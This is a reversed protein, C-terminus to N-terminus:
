ACALDPVTSTGMIEQVFGKVWETRVAAPSFVDLISRQSDQIARILGQDGQLIRALKRRAEAESDCAGAQSGKDFSEMLGGRMYVVPMGYAIAELPHYHIHRPERSHYYMVQLERYYRLLRDETVFGTLRPDPVPIPQAGAIIHPFEGFDRKFKEYIAGYYQPSTMISPCFFFVRKDGGRWCGAQRLVRDPLAVPLYVSRQRLLPAEILPITEYCVGLWFRRQIQWLRKWLWGDAFLDIYRTYNNPHERGFLRVVIRGQFFKALQGILPPFAACIVTGFHGNLVNAMEEDFATQYFNFRNLYDLVHTPLTCDQDWSFDHTGSRFDDGSPMVKSTFVEYDLSQILEVEADRLTTHNLLWAIRKERPVPRTFTAKPRTLWSCETVQEFVGLLEEGVNEFANGHTFRRKACEARQESAARDATHRWLTEALDNSDNPDFSLGCGDDHGLSETFADIRSHILPTGQRLAALLGYSTGAGHTRPDVVLSASAILEPLEEEPVVGLDIFDTGAKIGLRHMEALCRAAYEEQIADVFPPADARSLTGVLPMPLCGRERLHGLARILTLGNHLPRTWGTFLMFREPLRRRSRSAEAANSHAPLERRIVHTVTPDISHRETTERRAADSGFVLASALRILRQMERRFRDTRAGLDLNEFLVNGIGVVLPAPLLARHNSPLCGWPSPLFLVDFPGAEALLQAFDQELSPSISNPEIKGPTAARLSRFPASPWPIPTGALDTARALVTLKWGTGVVAAALSAATEILYTRAGDPTVHPVYMVIRKGGNGSM